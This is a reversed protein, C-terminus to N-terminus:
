IRDLLTNLGMLFNYLKSVPLITLLEILHEKLPSYYRFMGNFM